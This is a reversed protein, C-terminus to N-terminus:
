NFETDFSLIRKWQSEIASLVNAPIGFASDDSHCLTIEHITSIYCTIPLYGIKFADNLPVFSVFAMDISQKVAQFLNTLVGISQFKNKSTDVYSSSYERDRKSGELYSFQM